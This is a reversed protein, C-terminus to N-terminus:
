YGIIIIGQLALTIRKSAYLTGLYDCIKNFDDKGRYNNRVAMVLYEVELMMCAKFIDKLFQNNDVTGAEVELVIKSDRSLADPEFYKEEENTLGFLVPVRIKENKGKGQEVIMDAERLYPQLLRLVENSSLNNKKSDIKEEVQSFCQLISEIQNSIEIYEPFVKYRVM